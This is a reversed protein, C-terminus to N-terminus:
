VHLTRVGRLRPGCASGRQLCVVRKWQATLLPPSLTDLPTPSQLAFWRVEGFIRAADFMGKRLLHHRIAADLAQVDVPPGMQEDELAARQPSQTGTSCSRSVPHPVPLPFVPNPCRSEPLPLFPHSPSPPSSSLHLAASPPSAPMTTRPALSPVVRLLSGQKGRKFGVDLLM